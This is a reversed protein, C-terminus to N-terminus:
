LKIITKPVSSLDLLEIETTTVVTQYKKVLDLVLKKNKFDFESFVDDLLLIPRRNFRNEYYGIENFKLWFIALRQEGRSGYHHLNKNFDAEKEYIQFDDKQPGIMTRRYKKEVNFIEKLKKRTLENKLYDVYFERKDIKPHNNLFDVYKKRKATIYQAHKELYEDWFILEEKLTAENKHFELIKNRRRLANDFNGLKKKYDYDYFSILKNFYDRRIEPSHTIIEIQEPSFLVAKTQLSMYDYYRKKTKDIFYAKEVTDNRKRFHVKFDFIKDELGFKAEITAQNKGFSILEEEKEERFGSGNILCYIAELLNTKGKANDGIIITLFPNFTFSQKDFNRFNQLIIQKLLM